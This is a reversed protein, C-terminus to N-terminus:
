WNVLALSEPNFIGGEGENVLAIVLPDSLGFEEKVKEKYLLAPNDPALFADARTDKTLGPLFSLTLGMVLLSLVVVTKPWNVLTQFFRSLGTDYVPTNM